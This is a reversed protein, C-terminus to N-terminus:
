VYSQVVCNIIDILDMFVFLSIGGSGKQNIETLIGDEVLQDVLRSATMRSPIGLKKIIEPASVVPLEFLLDILRLM